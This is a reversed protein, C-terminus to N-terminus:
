GLARGRFSGRIRRPMYRGLDADVLEWAPAEPVSPQELSEPFQAAKLDTTTKRRMVHNETTLIQQQIAPERDCSLKRTAQFTVRADQELESRSSAAAV